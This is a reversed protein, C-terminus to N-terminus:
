LRINRGELTMMLESIMDEWLPPVYHYDKNFRDSNLSRDMYPEDVGMINISTEMYKKILMLLDNKNIPKSAVNYLGGKFPNMDLVRHIIRAFEITTFGSFIVNKYGSVQEKQSIFWEFLGRQTFLEPGILSTRLTIANEHQVEGLFKSRGYLDDVDSKDEETYHGKKGSFICDTSIHILKIYSNKSIESLKHPLDVNIRNCLGEDNADNCQKIIGICNIIADPQINEVIKNFNVNDTIELEDILDVVGFIYKYQEYYSKKRRLTGTVSYGLKPLEQCLKHGLMGGAGLILIKSIKNNM